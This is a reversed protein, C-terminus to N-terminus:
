AYRVIKAIEREAEQLLFLTNISRQVFETDNSRTLVQQKLDSKALALEQLMEDILAPNKYTLERSAFCDYLFEGLFHPQCVRYIRAGYRVLDAVSSSWLQSTKALTLAEEAADTARAIWDGALLHGNPEDLLAAMVKCHISRTTIAVDTNSPGSPLERLSDIARQSNYWAEIVNGSDILFRARNAHLMVILNCRGAGTNLKWTALLEEAKSFAANASDIKGVDGCITARNIWALILRDAFASNQHIPVYAMAEIARDLSCIAEEFRNSKRLVDSRNIWAAALLWASQLDERWATAERIEVAKDFHFLASDWAGNQMKDIGTLMHIRSAIMDSKEQHFTEM